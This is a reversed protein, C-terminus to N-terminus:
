KILDIPTKVRKNYQECYHNKYREAYEMLKKGKPTIELGWDEKKFGVIDDCYAVDLDYAIGVREMKMFDFLHCRCKTFQHSYVCRELIPIKTEDEFCSVLSFMMLITIIILKM